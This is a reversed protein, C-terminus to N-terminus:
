ALLTISTTPRDIHWGRCHMHLVLNSRCNFRLETRAIKGTEQDCLNKLLYFWIGFAEKEGYGTKFDM